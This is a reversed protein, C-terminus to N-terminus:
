EAESRGGVDGRGDGFYWYGLPSTVLVGGLRRVLTAADLDVDTLARPGGCLGMGVAGSGGCGCEGASNTGPGYTEM